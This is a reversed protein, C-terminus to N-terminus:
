LMIAQYANPVLPPKTIYELERAREDSICSSETVDRSIGLFNKVFGSCFFVGLSSM